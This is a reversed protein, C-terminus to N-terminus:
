IAAPAGGAAGLQQPPVVDTPQPQTEPVSPAIVDCYAIYRRFADQVELPAESRYAILYANTVTRKAEALYPVQFTIPMAGEGRRLKEIQFQVMDEQATELQSWAPLDPVGILSMAQSKTMVGQASLEEVAEIQAEPSHAMANIGFVSLSVDGETVALDAWKSSRLFTTRGERSRGGVEYGPTLKLCDDNLDELLRFLREQFKEFRHIMPVHRQSTVDHAARVAKASNLGKQPLEGGTTGQSFGEQDLLDQWIRQQQAILDQPSGSWLVAEPKVNGDYVIRLGPMNSIKSVEVDSDAHVLFVLNSGLDECRDIIAQLQWYRIQASLAREVYGQGWYGFPRDFLNFHIIPFRDRIWPQKELLANDLTRVWMGDEAKGGSPLHCAEVITVLDVESDKRLMYTDYDDLDPGKADKIKQKLKPYQRALYDRPVFYKHTQTRPNAGEAQDVFTSNPLVNVLKPTGTNPDIYGRIGGSGTRAADYWSKETLQFMGLSQAQWFLCDARDEARNRQTYDAKTATYMPLTRVGACRSAATDILAGVLNKRIRMGLLRFQNIESGMAGSGDANGNTAISVFLLNDARMDSSQEELATQRAWVRAPIDAADCDWFPEFSTKNDSPM